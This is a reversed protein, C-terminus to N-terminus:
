RIRISYVVVDVVVAGADIRLLEYTTDVVIDTGPLMQKSTIGVFAADILRDNWECSQGGNSSPLFWRGHILERKPCSYM